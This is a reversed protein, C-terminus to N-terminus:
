GFRQKIQLVRQVTTDLQEQSIKGDKVAQILNVFAQRHIAHDRNFLLLDAGAALALPAGIQPPYGNAALAGMELSDTAILGKFGLEERLLGTLVPRSSDRICM